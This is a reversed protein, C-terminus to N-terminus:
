RLRFPEADCHAHGQELHARDDFAVIHLHQRGVIREIAIQGLPHHAQEGGGRRADLDVTDILTEEIEVAEGNRIQSRPQAVQLALDM